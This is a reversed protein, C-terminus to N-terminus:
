GRQEDLWGFVERLIETVRAVPNRRIRTEEEGVVHFLGDLANVTTYNGLDTTLHEFPPEPLSGTFDLLLVAAYWNHLTNYREAFATWVRTAGVMSLKENVLPSYVGTLTDFTGKRLYSTAATSDGKLIKMGDSVTMEFIRNKFIDVSLPAAAEAARNIAILLSDRTKAFSQFDFLGLSFEIATVAQPSLSNELSEAYAFAKQADSPILIKVAENLLYGNARSLQVAASDIGVALASKLASTIETQNPPTNTTGVDEAIDYLAECNLLFLACLTAILPFRQKIM